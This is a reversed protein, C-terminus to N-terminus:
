APKSAAAEAKLRNNIIGMGVYLVPSILFEQMTWTMDKIQQSVMGFTWDYLGVLTIFGLLSIHILHWLHSMWKDKLEGLHATGVLYVAITTAFKIVHRIKRPIWLVDGDVFYIYFLTYIVLIIALGGIWRSRPTKYLKM